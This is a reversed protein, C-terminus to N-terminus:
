GPVPRGDLLRLPKETDIAGIIEACQQVTQTLNLKETDVIKWSFEEALRDYCEIMRPVFGPIQQFSIAPKQVSRRRFEAESIRLYIVEDPCLLGENQARVWDMALTRSGAYYTFLSFIYRHFILNKGSLLQRILEPQLKMRLDRTFLVEESDPMKEGEGDLVAALVRRNQRWEEPPHYLLKEQESFVGKQYLADIVSSKGSCDLGCFALMYGRAM